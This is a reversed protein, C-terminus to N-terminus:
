IEFRELYEGFGRAELEAVPVFEMAASNICFRKGGEEAPGDDFVHGLHSDGLFSRIETRVMGFKRDIKEKVTGGDIPRTFSPWGSGSEYKDLSSFIPKGTTVDLYIGAEYHDWYKNDFAKETGNNQTVEYQLPTLKVEMDAAGMEWNKEIFDSRGSGKKYRKYREAAHLYFDQHYEDALYFESTPLIETVIKGIFKGSSELNHKSQLALVKQHDTHYFIATTYQFGRDAFQGGSDTPDIQKWYIDLLAEYSIKKADYFIRASERHGSKGEVVLEYTPNTVTGGMFGTFVEVVGEQSEFPGEMCWFCGGSFTAVSLNENALLEVYQNSALVSDAKSEIKSTSSLTCGTMMICILSLVITKINM